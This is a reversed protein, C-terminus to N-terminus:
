VAKRAFDPKIILAMFSRESEVDWIPNGLNIGNQPIFFGSASFVSVLERSQRSRDFDFVSLKIGSFDFDIAFGFFIVFVIPIGIGLGLTFPDRLIHMIEKRAVALARSFNFIEKM